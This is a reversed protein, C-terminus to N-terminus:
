RNEVEEGALERLAMGLYGLYEKLGEAFGRKDLEYEDAHEIFPEVLEAIDGFARSKRIEAVIRKCRELCGAVDGSELIRIAEDVEAALAKFDPLGLLDYGFGMNLPDHSVEIAYDRFDIRLGARRFWAPVDGRRPSYDAEVLFRGLFRLYIGVLSAKIAPAHWMTSFVITPLGDRMYVDGTWTLRYHPRAALKVGGKIVAVPEYDDRRRFGDYPWHFWYIVVDDSAWEEIVELLNDAERKWMYARM